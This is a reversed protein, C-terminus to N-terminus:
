DHGVSCVVLSINNLGEGEDTVSPPALMYDITSARPIEDEDLKMDENVHQCFECAWRQVEDGAHWHAFQMSTNLSKHAHVM